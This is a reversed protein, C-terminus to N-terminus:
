DERVAADKRDDASQMEKLAARSLAHDSARRLAERYWERAESLGLEQCTAGLRYCLDANPGPGGSQVGTNILQGYLDLLQRRASRLEFGREIHERGEVAAGLRQLVAGLQHHGTADYPDLRIAEAYCDRAASWASTRDCVAARHRWYWAKARGPEPVQQLLAEWSDFDAMDFLCEALAEAARLDGPRERVCGQLIPRADNTRGLVTLHHGLARRAHFDDADNAIFKELTEIAQNPETGVAEIMAFIALVAAPVPSSPLLQWLQERAEDYREELGCIQVLGLRAADVTSYAGAFRSAEELARRYAREARAGQNNLHLIQAERLRAQASWGSGEPVAALRRLCSATDGRAAEARAMLIQAEADKPHRPLYPRLASEVLDWQGAMSARRAENLDPGPVSRGDLWWTLAAGGLLAISLVACIARLTHRTMALRM